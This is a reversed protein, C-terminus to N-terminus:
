GSGIELVDDDKSNPYWELINERIDSLHYLGPWEKSQNLVEEQRNQKCVELLYDEIAGDSYTDKGKYYERDIIVKGIREIM